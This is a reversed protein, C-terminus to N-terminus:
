QRFRFVQGLSGFLCARRQDNMLIEPEHGPVPYDPVLDVIIM